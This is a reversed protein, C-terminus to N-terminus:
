GQPLELFNGAAILTAAAILLAVAMAIRRVSRSHVGRWEGSVWGVLQGGLLFGVQQLGSGVSGGPAGILLMGSGLLAISVASNLGIVLALFFEKPCHLLTGWSRDRSILWAAYGVNVLAGGSLAVGWVAFTAAIDGAGHAKLSSIIPGQGYIFSFTFGCAMIGALVALVLSTSFGGSRVSHEAQTKERGYGATAALIVAVLAVMAGTVVTLGVASALPPAQQFVGSGKFVLPVSVGLCIGLGSLIATTLGLGIRVYCLGCLVSAVGWCIGWANAKAITELPISKLAALLNPCFYIAVLWPFVILGSLMGVFWWHEFRYARMLKMPWAGSGSIMGALLVVLVGTLIQM